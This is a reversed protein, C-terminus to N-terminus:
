RTASTQKNNSVLTAVASNAADFCTVANIPKTNPHKEKLVFGDKQFLRMLKLVVSLIAVDNLSDDDLRM